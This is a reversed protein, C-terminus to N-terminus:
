PTARTLWKPLFILLSWGALGVIAVLRLVIPWTTEYIWLGVLVPLFLVWVLAQLILPLQRVWHWAADLSGQSAVLGYGFGVWLVAFVLFALGSEVVIPIVGTIPVIIKDVVFSIIEEM